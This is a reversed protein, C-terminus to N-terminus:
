YLKVYKHRPLFIMNNNGYSSLLFVMYNYVKVM